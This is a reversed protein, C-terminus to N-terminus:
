VTEFCDSSVKARLSKLKVGTAPSVLMAEGSKFLSRPVALEEKLKAIHHEIVTCSLQFPLGCHVPNSFHWTRRRMVTVASMSTHSCEPESPRATARSIQPWGQVTSQWCHTGSHTLFFLIFFWNGQLASQVNGLKKTAAATFSMFIIIKREIGSCDMLRMSSRWSFEWAKTAAYM